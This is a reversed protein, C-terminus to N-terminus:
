ANGGHVVQNKILIEKITRKAAEYYFSDRPNGLHLACLHALDDCFDDDAPRGKGQIFTRFEKFTGFKKDWSSDHIGERRLSLRSIDGDRKLLRLAVNVARGLSQMQALALIPM